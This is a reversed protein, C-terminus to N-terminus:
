LTRPGKQTNKYLFYIIPLLIKIKMERQWTSFGSQYNTIVHSYYIKYSYKPLFEEQRKSIYCFYKKFGKKTKTWPQVIVIGEGDGTLLPSEQSTNLSLSHDCVLIFRHYVVLDTRMRDSVNRVTKYTSCIYMSVKYSM